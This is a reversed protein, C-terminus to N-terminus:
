AEGRFFAALAAPTDSSFGVFDMAGPDRPDAISFENAVMAVTALRAPIGMKKRYGWLAQMPHRHPSAWTESDTLIQYSEVPIGHESAYQMPLSCDTPGFPLADIRKVVDDLRERPSIDLPEVAPDGLMGRSKGTFAVVHTRPETAVTVLALAASAIRPTLHPIGSVQGWAMSGSVDLGILTRTGSPEVSAFAKYFAADLADMVQREPSWSLNRNSGRGYAVLAALLAIPHVRGRRLTEEDTLRECIVQTTESMPPTLGVRSLTPLNRILATVPMDPLLAEWVRQEEWARQPVVERPLGHERVLSAMESASTSERLKEAAGAFEMARTYDESREGEWPYPQKGIGLRYVNGRETSDGALKRRAEAASSATVAERMRGREDIVHAKLLVDRQTWGNRQPYKLMWYILNRMSRENYIRNVGRRLGYSWGKGFGKLHNLYKTLHDFTRAVQPLADYSARRTDEDGFASCLALVFLAPDNRHAKGEYSVERTKEVVEPGNGAELLRLVADGNSRTLERASAYYTADSSGLILLRELKTQDDVEWVAGGARGSTQDERGPMKESQPTYAPNYLKDYTM